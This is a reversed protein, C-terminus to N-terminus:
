GMRDRKPASPMQLTLLSETRILPFERSDAGNGFRRGSVGRLSGSCRRSSGSCDRLLFAVIGSAAGGLFIGLGVAFGIGLAAGSGIGFLLKTM